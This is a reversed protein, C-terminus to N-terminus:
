SRARENTRYLLANSWEADAAM